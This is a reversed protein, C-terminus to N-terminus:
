RKATTEQKHVNLRTTTTKKDFSSGSTSDSKFNNIPSRSKTTNSAKGLSSSSESGVTTNSRPRPEPQQHTFSKKILSVKLTSADKNPLSIKVDDNEDFTLKTMAEEAEDIIDKVTRIKDKISEDTYPKIKIGVFM